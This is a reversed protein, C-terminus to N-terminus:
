WNISLIKENKSLIFVETRWSSTLKISFFSKSFFYLSDFFLDLGLFTLLCQSGSLPKRPLTNELFLMPDSQWLGPFQPFYMIACVYM